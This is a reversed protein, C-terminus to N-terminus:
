KKPPFFNFITNIILGNNLQFVNQNNIERGLQVTQNIYGAELRFINNFRYGLLLAIRNQDFINEGVNEGFGIMIEDYAAIYPTKDEIKRGKLPMQLRFMYRARNLFLYDDEKNSSANNYSGVWRQELLFRHSLDIIGIKDSVTAMQYLRHETFDKGLGNIPIDGYPYTEILAYGLRLQVRPNIQYNLGTRLLSQLQDSILNNRRWQYETHISWKDNLNFTGFYNYWGITNNDKIRNQANVKGTLLFFFLLATTTRTSFKM